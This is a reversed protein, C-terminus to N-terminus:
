EATVDEWQSHAARQVRFKRGYMAYDGNLREVKARALYGDEAEDKEIPYGIWARSVLDFEQVRFTFRAADFLSEREAM